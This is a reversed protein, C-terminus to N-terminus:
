SKNLVRLTVVDRMRIGKNYMWQQIITMMTNVLIYLGLGMPLFVMLGCFMLPMIMMIKQQAPDASPNPTMKTQLFMAIGLFVPVIFYPDPSSLDKYFGFFPAHYLEVSNWLVQYLAIYIPFQLLM